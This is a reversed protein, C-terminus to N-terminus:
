RSNRRRILRKLHAFHFSSRVCLRLSASFLFDSQETRDGQAKAHSNSESVEITLFDAGHRRRRIRSEQLHTPRRDLDFASHTAILPDAHVLVLRGVEAAAAVEAVPELWSHGTIAPMSDIDEPFNLRTCCASRRRPHRDIYDADAAATTDTVYAMSRDPWDLRYGVSGGPHQLPFYTLTGGGPLPCLAPSRGFHFTPKVPFILEAFLHDRVAALKAAEGHVTTHRSCM